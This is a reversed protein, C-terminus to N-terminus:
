IIILDPVFNNSKLDLLRQIKHTICTFHELTKFNPSHHKDSPKIKSVVFEIRSFNSM